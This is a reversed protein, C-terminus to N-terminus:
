LPCSESINSYYNIREECECELFFKEMTHLVASRHNTFLEYTCPVVAGGGQKDYGYPNYRYKTAGEPHKSVTANSTSTSFFSIHGTFLAHHIYTSFIIFYIVWWLIKDVHREDMLKRFVRGMNAPVRGM